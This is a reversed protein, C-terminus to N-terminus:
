IATDMRKQSFDKMELLKQAMIVYRLLHKEMEWRILQILEVEQDQSQHSDIISDFAKLLVIEVKKGCVYFIRDATLEIDLHM